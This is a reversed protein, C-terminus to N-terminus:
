LRIVDIKVSFKTSGLHYYIASNSVRFKAVPVDGEVVLEGGGGPWKRPLNSRLTGPHENPKTACSTLVGQSRRQLRAQAAM